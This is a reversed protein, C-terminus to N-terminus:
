YKGIPKSPLLQSESVPKHSSYQLMTTLNPPEYEKVSIDITKNYTTEKEEEIIQSNSFTHSKENSKQELSKEFHPNFGM